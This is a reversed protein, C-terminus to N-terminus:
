PETRYEAYFSGLHLSTPPLNFRFHSPQFPYCSVGHNYTQSHLYAESSLYATHIQASCIQRYVTELGLMDLDLIVSLSWDADMLLSINKSM